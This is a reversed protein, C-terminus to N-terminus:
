SWTLQRMGDVKSVLSVVAATYLVIMAGAFRYLASIDAPDGGIPATLMGFVLFAVIAAGLLYAIGFGITTIPPIPVFLHSGALLLIALPVLLLPGVQQLGAWSLVVAGFALLLIEPIRDIM